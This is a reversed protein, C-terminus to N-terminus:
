PRIGNLIYESNVPTFKVAPIHTTAVAIKINNKVMLMLSDKNGIKEAIWETQGSFKLNPPFIYKKTVPLTVIIDTKSDKWLNIVHNLSNYAYNGSISDPKGPLFKFEKVMFMNDQDILSKLVNKFGTKYKERFEKSLSEFVNQFIIKHAAIQFDASQFLEPDNFAKILVEPGIGNYDGCSIAIKINREM